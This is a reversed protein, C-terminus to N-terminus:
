KIMRKILSRLNKDKWLRIATLVFTGLRIRGKVLMDGELVAEEFEPELRVSDEYIPM